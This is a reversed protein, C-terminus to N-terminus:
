LFNRMIERARLRMIKIKWYYLNILRLKFAFEETLAQIWTYINIGKYYFLLILRLYIVFNGNKKKKEGRM